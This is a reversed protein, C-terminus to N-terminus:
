RRINNVHENYDIDTYLARREMAKQLCGCEKLSATVPLSVADPFFVDLGENLPMNDTISNPRIPRRKEIDVVLWASRASVVPIDDKDRIEYNRVAFLKESGRPWSKVTVTECYKPRRVVLVSMRSIIWVMGTRALDERGVGINEAHSIAAEQFYQFMASLKLRDSRDIAGFRVPYTEQWVNVIGGEKPNAPNCRM